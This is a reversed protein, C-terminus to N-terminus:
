PLRRAAIMRNFLINPSVWVVDDDFAGGPLAANDSGGRAIFATGIPNLNAKEDANGTGADALRVGLDSFGGYGNKGTSIIVAPIDNPATAAVLNGAADRTAVTIDRPTSLRFPAASDAFDPTVSYLFIRGWSDLKATGLTAWPLFGTRRENTCRDGARDELGNAASIAPCPLHGNRVAYGVLAERAEDLAKRTDASRRQELQTSLPTILGGILLGVVILVIAIEVLTFGRQTFPSAKM